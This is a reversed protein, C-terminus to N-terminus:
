ATAPSASTPQATNTVPCSLEKEAANAIEMLLDIGKGEFFHILPHNKPMNNKATTLMTKFIEIKKCATVDVAVEIKPLEEKALLILANEADTVIEQGLPSTSQTNM